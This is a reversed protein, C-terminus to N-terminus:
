RTAARAGSPRARAAPAAALETGPPDHPAVQARFSEDNMYTINNAGWFSVKVPDGSCAFPDSVWWTMHPDARVLEAAATAAEDDVRLVASSDAM